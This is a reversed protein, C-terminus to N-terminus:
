KKKLRSKEARTLSGKKELLTIKNWEVACQSTVEMYYSSHSKQAEEKHIEQSQSM